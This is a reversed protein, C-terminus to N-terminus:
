RKKGFVRIKSDNQDIRKVIKQYIEEIIAINENIYVLLYPYKTESVFAENM